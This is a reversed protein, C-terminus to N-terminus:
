FSLNVCTMNPSTTTQQTRTGGNGCQDGNQGSGGAAGACGPKPTTQWYTCTNMTDTAKAIYGSPCTLTKNYKSGTIAAGPCASLETYGTIGCGGSVSIFNPRYEGCKNAAATVSHKLCSYVDRQTSTNTALMNPLIKTATYGSPCTGNPSGKCSSVYAKNMLSGGQYDLYWLGCLTEEYPAQCKFATTGSSTLFEGQACTPIYIHSSGAVSNSFNYPLAVTRELAYGHLALAVFGILFFLTKM